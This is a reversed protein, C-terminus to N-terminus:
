LSCNRLPSSSWRGGRPNCGLFAASRASGGSPCWFMSIPRRGLDKYMVATTTSKCVGLCQRLFRRHIVEEAEGTAFNGDKCMKSLWDVGWVECGYSMAPMVLADFLHCLLHVSRVKMAHCRSQVAHLAKRARAVAATIAAKAPLGDQFKMGLYVYGPKIPLSAGNYTFVATLRQQGGGYVVVESKEMNVFMSNARCFEHLGDLMEQLGAVSDATLVVDDAYLLARLVKAALDAGPRTCHRELYSELRDILIGFFVPSAPCGQKVGVHSDFPQGLRGATRVQLRTVELMSTIAHLARGHMGCGRLVRMLLPRSVRDYAKSFDIFACYLPKKKIRAVDILHRLVFCNDPTGRGSRFGAQGAARLGQQEAWADVRACWLISYLKGLVPSVAVGRYDNKVDPRGKPKPVPALASVQWQAPYSGRLVANCVAAIAPAMVFQRVNKGQEDPVEEYAQQLFEAHVGDVGAAKHNALGAMAENVEQVTFDRNLCEAAQLAEASPMPFLDAFNACHSDVSGGVLDCATNASLLNSFWETWEAASFGDGGKSRAQYMKWFQKPDEYLHRILDEQQRYGHARKTARVHRFYARRAVVAQASERGCERMAHRWAAQAQKCSADFWSNVVRGPPKKCGSNCIVRGCQAHVREVALRLGQHFVQVAEDASTASTVAEWMQQVQDSQVAQRFVDRLDPRWAWREPLTLRRAVGQQRHARKRGVRVSVGVPVHDFRGMDTAGPRMPLRTVDTVVHMTCGRLVSGTGTFVLQPSGIVYDIVSKRRNSGYFTFAGERDGPLRGNLVVLNHSRCLHVLERGMANAHRDQSKRIPLGKSLERMHLDGGSVAVGTHPELNELDTSSCVDVDPLRGIRSNTDGLIMIHGEAAFETIDAALTSWHTDRDLHEAVKYYNSGQHPLYCVCIYIPHTGGRCWRVWLMGLAAHERVVQVHPWLRDRVFLAVGGSAPEHPRQLARVCRYGPMTTDEGDCGTNTLALVDYRSLLNVIRNCTHLM